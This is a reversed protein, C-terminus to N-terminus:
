TTFKHFKLSKLQLTVTGVYSASSATQAMPESDVKALHKAESICFRKFSFSPEGDICNIVTPSRPITRIHFELPHTM